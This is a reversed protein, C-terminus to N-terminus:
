DLFAPNRGLDTSPRSVLLLALAGGFSVMAALMSAGLNGDPQLVRVLDAAPASRGYVTTAVMLTSAALTAASPGALLTGAVAIGSVIFIHLGARLPGTSGAAIVAFSLAAMLSMSCFLGTDLLALIPRPRVEVSGLRSAYSDALAIAWVLPIFTAPTSFGGAGFATPLTLPGQGLVASIVAMAVIATLLRVVRRVKFWLPM